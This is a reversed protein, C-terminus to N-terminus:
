LEGNDRSDDLGDDDDQYEWPPSVSVHEVRRWDSGDNWARQLWHEPQPEM